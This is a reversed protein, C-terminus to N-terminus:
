GHGSGAARSVDRQLGPPHFSTSPFLYCDTQEHRNYWFHHVHGAFLAEVRHRHLLDLFWTRGPEAINDYHEDEDRDAVYPPYHLSVFLRQKAAAALDEELWRAQEAEM